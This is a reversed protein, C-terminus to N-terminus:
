KLVARVKKLSKAALDFARKGSNDRISKDVGHALLLEFNAVTEDYDEREAAIHLMTQGKDDRANIDIGLSLLFKFFRVEGPFTVRPTWARTVLNHLLTQGGPQLEHPDLGYGQIM